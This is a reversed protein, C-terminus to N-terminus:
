CRTPTTSICFASRRGFATPSISSDTWPTVSARIPSPTQTAGASRETTLSPRTSSRMTWRRWSSVSTPPGATGDTSTPRYLAAPNPGRVFVAAARPKVAIPFEFSRVAFPGLPHRRSRRRCHGHEALLSWPLNNALMRRLRPLGYVPLKDAGLAERGLHLLGLVHGLHAHTVVVGDIAQKGERPPGTARNESIAPTADLLWRGGSSAWRRHMGPPSGATPKGTCARLLALLRSAPTRRRTRDRAGGSSPRRDRERRRSPDMLGRLRGRWRVLDAHM